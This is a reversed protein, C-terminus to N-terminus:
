RGTVREVGLLSSFIAFIMGVVVLLVIGLTAALGWNLLTNIMMDILTVLTIEGSGGLLAPTVYFGVALLFTIVCGAGIGSLSLPLFVHLFARLPSAGLSRAVRVVSPDIRSMVGYLPFIMFPLLVHVMGIQVSTMNFLLKSPENILGLWGLLHNVLGNKGLIVIWAFTRVLISTWFPVLVLAMLVNRARASTTAMLYAMPYGLILSLFTALFSIELTNTLAKFYAPEDLLERYFELTFQQDFFSWVWLRSLPYIYVLLYFILPPLVLLGQRSRWFGTRGTGIPRRREEAM